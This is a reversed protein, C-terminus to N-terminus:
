LIIQEPGKIIRLRVGPQVARPERMVIPQGIREIDIFWRPKVYNPPSFSLCKIATEDDNLQYGAVLLDGEGFLHMQGSNLQEAQKTSVNSSERNEDLKKFWLTVLHSISLLRLQGADQHIVMAGPIEDFHAIVNEFILDNVINARTTKRHVLIDPYKRYRKFADDVCNWLRRIHPRLEAYAQDESIPM